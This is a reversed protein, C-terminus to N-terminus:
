RVIVYHVTVEFPIQKEPMDPPLPPLYAGRFVSLAGLDLWGSGSKGTLELNQVRGDHEVRMHLTV